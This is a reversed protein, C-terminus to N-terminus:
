PCPGWADLVITLDSGDVIGSGDVDCRPTKGGNTGWANMIAALDVGNVVNDQFIDAPCGCAPPSECCDPINNTNLDAFEGSLIQGYDVIGDNNCDASWEFVASGTHGPDCIDIGEYIMDNPSNTPTGSPSYYNIWAENGGCYTANDPQAGNWAITVPSGDVWIWGGAPESSGPVQYGGIWPGLTGVWLTPNSVVNAFVWSSAAENHLMALDANKSEAANRASQWPIAQSSLVVGQYWHGNGGVEVRWQVANQAMASASIATSVVGIAMYKKMKRPDKTNPQMSRTFSVAVHASHLSGRASVEHAAFWFIGTITLIALALAVARTSRRPPADALDLIRAAEAHKM